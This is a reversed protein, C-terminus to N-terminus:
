FYYQVFAWSHILSSNLCSWWPPHGQVESLCAWLVELHTPTYRPTNCHRYHSVMIRLITSATATHVFCLQLEATSLSSSFLSPCCHKDRDYMVTDVPFAPFAFGATKVGPPRHGGSGAVAESFGTSLGSGLPM